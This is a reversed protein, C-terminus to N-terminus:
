RDGALEFARDEDHSDSDSGFLSQRLEDIGFAEHRRAIYGVGGCRKYESTEISGGMAVKLAALMELARAGYVRGGFEACRELTKCMADFGDELDVAFDTELSERDIRASERQLNELDSRLLAAPPLANTM